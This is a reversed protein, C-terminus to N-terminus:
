YNPRTWIFVLVVSLILAQIVLVLHKVGMVLSLGFVAIIGITALRKARPHIAGREQWDIVAPGFHRHSLIWNHLRESSRSFFFAALLLFPVTPLLPLIVGAMGLGLSVLGLCLWLIRM